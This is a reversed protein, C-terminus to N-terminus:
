VESPSSQLLRFGGLLDKLTCTLPGGESAVFPPIAGWSEALINPIFLSAKAADPLASHPGSGQYGSLHDAVRSFITEAALRVRSGPCNRSLETAHSGLLNHVLAFLKGPLDVNVRHAVFLNTWRLHALSDLGPHNGLKHGERECFDAATLTLDDSNGLNPLTM